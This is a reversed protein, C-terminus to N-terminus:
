IVMEGLLSNPFSATTVVSVYSGLEPSVGERVAFNLVKNQSTRAIWQQRAENKGEVMVEVIQGVHRQYRHRQIERQKEQVVTLRRAKEEDPVADDLKLSPTNPRPSYKFGFIGDYEVEDLLSLTQEFDAETEGPFGVIIDSTISIERNAEKM